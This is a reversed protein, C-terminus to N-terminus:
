TCHDLLKRYSALSDLPRQCYIQVGFVEIESRIQHTM